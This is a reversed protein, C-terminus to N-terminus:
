ILTTRRARGAVHATTARVHVTEPFVLRATHLHTAVGFGAVHAAPDIGEGSTRKSNGRDNWGRTGDLVAQTTSERERHWEDGGGFGVLGVGVLFDFGGAPSGDNRTTGGWFGYSGALAEGPSYESVFGNSAGGLGPATVAGVDIRKQADVRGASEELTSLLEGVAPDWVGRHRGTHSAVHLRGQLDSADAIPVLKM